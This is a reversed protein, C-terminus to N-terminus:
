CNHGRFKIPHRKSKRSLLVTTFEDYAISDSNDIDYADFLVSAEQRGFHMNTLAAQFEGRSLYGSNNQDYRKFIKALARSQQSSITSFNSLSEAKQRLSEELLLLVQGDVKLRAADYKALAVQMNGASANLNRAEQSETVSPPVQNAAARGENPISEPGDLAYSRAAGSNFLRSTFEDISIAGSGDTDM